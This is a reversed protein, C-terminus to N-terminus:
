SDFNEVLSKRSKNGAWHEGAPLADGFDGIAIDSPICLVM